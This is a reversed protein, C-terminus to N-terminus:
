SAGAERPRPRPKQAAASAPFLDDLLSRWNERERAPDVLPKLRICWERIERCFAADTEARELLSALAETDMFPFYGPYDRGLLGMSGPIRSSLTPVSCAIAECVANAGGEMKSSIVHLRSRALIRLAKWRPVEGLWQYRPNSAAEERAAAEMEPSLAGGVHLIRIRSSPGLLRAARAARFPDKVPRLHGLVCVEFADASPQPLRAPPRVSQCIVRVVPRLREPLEEAGMSQLVIIRTAMELSERAQPHTHIDGYLDTGTLALVLPQEPRSERFRRVSAHSRLAHLAVMVDCRRGDYEERVSVRLGLGRLIGAWRAATIRNGQRSTRPAPTILAIDMFLFNELRLILSDSLFLAM